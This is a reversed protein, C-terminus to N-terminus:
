ASAGPKAAKQYASLVKDLAAGGIAVHKEACRRAAAGDRARVADALQQLNDIDRFEPEMVHTLLSWASRYTKNMSNFALRFAINGAGEVVCRWFEMALEQLQAVDGGGARMRALVADMRAAAEAGGSEAAAAAIQPALLARLSMISRAVAPNINGNRDVLLSPMLELGGENRYDLVVSNGGQRVAILGAQQLRKIAERVAGRNVGLMESLVREAPLESGPAIEKCVIKQQIQQYVSDSLSQKKVASFM